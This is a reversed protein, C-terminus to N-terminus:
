AWVISHVNKEYYQGCKNLIFVLTKKKNQKKKLKSHDLQSIKYHLFVLGTVQM